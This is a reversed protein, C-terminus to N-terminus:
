SKKKKDKTKLLNYYIQTHIEKFKHQKLNMSRGSTKFTVFNPLNKQQEKKLYTKEARSKRRKKQSESSVFPLGKSIAENARNM